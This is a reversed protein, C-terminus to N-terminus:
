AFELSESMKSTSWVLVDYQVFVSQYLVRGKPKRIVELPDVGLVVQGAAVLHELCQGADQGARQALDIRHAPDAPVPAAGSVISASRSWRKARRTSFRM